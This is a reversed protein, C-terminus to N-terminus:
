DTGQPVWRRAKSRLQELQQWHREVAERGPKTVAIRTLPTKGKFQKEVTVLGAEELKALHSSLNGKSLGTLRQLYLFDASECSTLATLLALRAPEHILRDLAALEEFPAKM